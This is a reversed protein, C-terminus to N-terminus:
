YGMYDTLWQPTRRLEAVLATKFGTTQSHPSVKTPNFNFWDIHIHDIHAKGLAEKGNKRKKPKGSGSGYPPMFGITFFFPKAGPWDTYLINGWRMMGATNILADIIADAVAKEVYDRSDLMIDMAMGATHRSGDDRVTGLKYPQSSLLPVGELLAAKLERIAPSEPQVGATWESM